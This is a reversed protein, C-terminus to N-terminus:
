SPPEELDNRDVFVPTRKEDVSAGLEAKALNTCRIPHGKQVVSSSFVPYSQQGIPFQSLIKAKERSPQKMSRVAFKNQSALKRIMDQTTKGTAMM